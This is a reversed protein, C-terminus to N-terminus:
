RQSNLRALIRRLEDKQPPDFALVNVIERRAGEIDGTQMAARVWLMRAELLTPGLEVATKSEDFTKQWDGQRSYCRALGFHNEASRANLSLARRWYDLAAETRETMAATTAAGRLANEQEPVLHLIDAFCLFAQETQGTLQYAEARALSARVDNASTRLASDLLPLAYQAMRPRDAPPVRAAVLAVGLDRWVSGDAVPDDFFSALGIEPILPTREIPAVSREPRRLVRHDTITVHPVDSANMRPMHCAICSDGNKKQREDSTLRCHLRAHCTNCRDRYFAVREAPQPLVHPDHCSICGLAEDSGRYCRSAVMQEVQGVFQQDPAVPTRLFVAWFAELPLGPRYDFTKRGRREVRIEGQLHCQWCVAERLAPELRAPNVITTDPSSVSSGRAQESAHLEGPGHCRECGIAPSTDFVPTEYRNITSEDPTAHGAHCFVCPRTIPQFFGEQWAKSVNPALDWRRAQPFWNIPSQYLRGEEEVLYARGRRGSGVVYGIPREDSLVSQGSEDRLTASHVFGSDRREVGFRFGVKDFAAPVPENEGNAGSAGVVALSRGMPHKKFSAAIKEHCGACVGDGVYHVEPRVNQYPTPFTLRPDADEGLAAVAAGRKHWLWAGSAIVLLVCAAVFLCLRRKGDVWYRSTAVM